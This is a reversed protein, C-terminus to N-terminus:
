VNVAEGLLLWFTEINCSGTSRGKLLGLQTTRHAPSISQFAEHHKKLSHCDNLESVIPQKM